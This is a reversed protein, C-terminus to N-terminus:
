VHPWFPFPPFKDRVVAIFLDVSEIELVKHGVEYYLIVVLRERVLERPNRGDNSLQLFHLVSRLFKSCLVLADGSVSIVAEPAFIRLFSIVKQELCPQWIFVPLEM